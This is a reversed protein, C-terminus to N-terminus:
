VITTLWQKVCFFHNWSIQGYGKLQNNKVENSCIPECPVISLAYLVKICILGFWMLGTQVLTCSLKIFVHKYCMSLVVHKENWMCAPVRACALNIVYFSEHLSSTYASSTHMSCAHIDPAYMGFSTQTCRPMYVSQLKISCRIAYM